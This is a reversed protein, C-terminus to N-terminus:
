NSEGVTLASNKNTKKNNNPLGVSYVLSAKIRPQALSRYVPRQFPGVFGLTESKTYKQSVSILGALNAFAYHLGGCLKKFTLTVCHSSDCLRVQGRLFFSSFIVVKAAGRAVGDSLFFAHFGTETAAVAFAGVDSTNPPSPRTDRM